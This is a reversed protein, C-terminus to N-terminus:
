LMRIKHAYSNFEGDSIVGKKYFVLYVKDKNLQKRTERYAKM